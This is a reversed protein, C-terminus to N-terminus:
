RYSIEGTEINLDFEFASRSGDLNVIDCHYLWLTAGKDKITMTIRADSPVSYLKEIGTNWISEGNIYNIRFLSNYSFRIGENLSIIEDTEEVQIKFEALLEAIPSFVFKKGILINGEFWNRIGSEYNNLSSYNLSPYYYVFGNNVIFVDSFDDINVYYTDGYERGTGLFAIGYNTKIYNAHSNVVIEDISYEKYEGYGIHEKRNREFPKIGIAELWNNESDYYGVWVKNEQFGTYLSDTSYVNTVIKNGAFDSIWCSDLGIGMDFRKLRVFFRDEELPYVDTSRCLEFGYEVKQNDCLYVAQKMEEPSFYYIFGYNGNQLKRFSSNELDSLYYSENKCDKGYWEEQLLGSINFLAFWDKGKRNGYLLTGEEQNATQFVQVVDTINNRNLLENDTEYRVKDDEGCGFLFLCVVLWLIWNQKMIVNKEGGQGRRDAHFLFSARPSNEIVTSSARSQGDHLLLVITGRKFIYITRRAFFCISYVFM